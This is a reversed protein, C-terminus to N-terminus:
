AAASKAISSWIGVAIGSLIVGLAAQFDPGVITGLAPWKALALGLASAVSARVWGGLKDADILKVLFQM